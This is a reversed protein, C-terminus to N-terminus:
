NSKKEAPLLKFSRAVFKGDVIKGKVKAKRVANCFGNDDHADGFKNINIGEVFYPKGDIKVALDCGKKDKMGFNCQGCSAEVIQTDVKTQANSGISILVFALLSLVVKM